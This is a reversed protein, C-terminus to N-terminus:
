LKDYFKNFRLTEYFYCAPVSLTYQASNYFAL